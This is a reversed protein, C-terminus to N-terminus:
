RSHFGPEAPADTETTTIRKVSALPPGNLCAALMADIESEPGSFIAEVTGDSCNRVSGSLGLRIAEKQTWSRYWVGQVRGHVVVRVSIKSPETQSM